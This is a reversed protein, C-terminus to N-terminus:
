SLCAGDKTEKRPQRHINYSYHSKITINNFQFIFSWSKLFFKYFLRAVHVFWQVEQHHGHIENADWWFFWSIRQRKSKLYLFEWQKRCLLSGPHFECSSIEPKESIRTAEDHSKQLLCFRGERFSIALQCRFIVEQIGPSEPSPFGDNKPANATLKLSHLQESNSPQYLWGKFIRQLDILLGVCSHTKRVAWIFLLDIMAERHTASSVQSGFDELYHKQYNQAQSQPFIAIGDRSFGPLLFVLQWKDEYIKQPALNWFRVCGQLRSYM